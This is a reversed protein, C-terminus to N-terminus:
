QDNHPWGANERQTAAGRSHPPHKATGGQTTALCASIGVFAARAAPGSPVRGRRDMLRAFRV